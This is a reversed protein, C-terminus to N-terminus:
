GKLLKKLIEMAQKGDVKGKFKGMILGMYGGINLGPKEEIIKKIEKQQELWKVADGESPFVRDQTITQLYGTINDDFLYESM